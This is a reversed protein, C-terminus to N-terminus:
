VTNTISRADRRTCMTPDVGCGSSRNMRWILRETVAASVPQQPVVGDQDAIPIPFPALLYLLAEALRPNADDQRGHPCRIRIRVRLTKDSGDLLLAEVPQNREALAVESPGHRLEDMMIMTLPIMLPELVRQDLRRQCATRGARHM